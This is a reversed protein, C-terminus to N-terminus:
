LGRKIFGLLSAPSPLPCVMLWETEDAGDGIIHFGIRQYLRVAPNEKSVGLSVNAYGKASLHMLMHAMLATGIGKGRYDKYLSICLSPTRDDLHGYMPAIRAWVAGVIRQEVEAVLAFDHPQTGFAYWAARLQPNASLIDKPLPETYWPPLYIAALLFDALLPHEEKQMTRIQRPM